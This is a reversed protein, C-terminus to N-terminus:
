AAELLDCLLTCARRGCEGPQGHLFAGITGDDIVTVRPDSLVEGVGEVISDVYPPVVPGLSERLGIEIPVLDLDRWDPNGVKLGVDVSVVPRRRLAAFEFSTGSYDGVMVHACFIAGDGDLPSELRIRKTRGVLDRLELLAPAQEIFFLPHPRVTVLYGEKELRAALSVGCRDLLNDPGWTPAILVHNSVGSAPTGSMAAEDALVDLKGYGVAESRRAPLSRARGLAAFERDHHPGASFLMDYGDFADPSYITHLSALSHPMHIFRTAPTPFINRTLGSSPTVVIPCAVEAAAVFSGAVDVPIGASAYCDRM